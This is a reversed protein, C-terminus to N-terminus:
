YLVDQIREEEYKEYCERIEQKVSELISEKREILLSEDEREGWFVNEVSDFHLHNTNKVIAVIGRCAKKLGTKKKAADFIDHIMVSIAARFIDSDSCFGIKYRAYYRIKSIYEELLEALREYEKKHYLEMVEAKKEVDFEKYMLMRDEACFMYNYYRLKKNHKPLFSSSRWELYNQQEQQYKSLKVNKRQMVKSFEEWPVNFDCIDYRMPKLQRSKGFYKDNYVDLNQVVYFPESLVSTTASSEFIETKYRVVQGRNTAIECRDSINKGDNVWIDFLKGMVPTCKLIGFAIDAMKHIYRQKKNRARLFFPSNSAVWIEKLKYSVKRMFTDCNRGCIIEINVGMSNTDYTFAKETFNMLTTSTDMYRVYFGPFKKNNKLSEVKRHEISQLAAMLREIDKAFVAVAGNNFEELFERHREEKLALEGSIYYDIGEAECVNKIETLLGITKSKCTNM